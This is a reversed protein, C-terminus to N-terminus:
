CGCEDPDFLQKDSLTGDKNITYMYITIGDSESVILYKGNPSGILSDPNVMDDLVRILKKRDPSLYYVYKNGDNKNDSSKFIAHIFYVGGNSVIWLDNPANTHEYDYKDDLVTIKGQSDISILSREPSSSTLPNGDKDYFIGNKKGSEELFAELNGYQSWKQIRNQPIDSFIINNKDDGPPEESFGATGSLLLLLTLSCWKLNM